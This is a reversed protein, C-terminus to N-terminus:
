CGPLEAAAAVKLAAQRTELPVAAGRAAVPRLLTALAPYCGAPCAVQGVM